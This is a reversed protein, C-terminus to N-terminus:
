TQNYKIAVLGKLYHGEPYHSSVLHDFDQNLREVVRLSVNADQAADAVVKNFLDSHMLGSCSFTILVGGEVLLECALRNIDKYGRAARVLHRKNEIFKPPDLVIVDFKKRAQKYQRLQEFVDAKLHTVKKVQEASFNNLLNAKSTALASESVDLNTVSNAGGAIAYLSFGGTYSFCNLVNKDSCYLSAIYRNHRQDLYYGTKHGEILDVKISLKNEKIIINDPLKGFHTQIFPDLGEKSRVSVDSREHICTFDYLSNIADLIKSRHKDAGASLLQIIAIHDYVDITVGPLGDSEGAVLRYANTNTRKLWDQRVRYSQQIRNKFFIHDIITEKSFSWVRAAIQSHPSYAAKALWNGKSSFVDVTTGLKPNGQINDIAGTFIWPHFRLLSKEKEPKLIIKTAM